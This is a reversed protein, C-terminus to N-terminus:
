KPSSWVTVTMATSVASLSDVGTDIGIEQLTLRIVGGYPRLTDLVRRRHQASIALGGEEARKSVQRERHAWKRGIRSTSTGATEPRRRPPLCWHSLMEHGFPTALETVLRGTVDFVHDGAIGSEDAVGTDDCARRQQM